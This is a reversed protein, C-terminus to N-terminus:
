GAKRFLDFREALFERNPRLAERRPVHIRSGQFGQLGHRLVPGDEETLVDERIQVTLDPQIGLVYGDFAAHHLGCLALGNPVIPEGKPHTDPLIHAAELLESHRLRCVACREEYAHLVRTRFGAQHLRHQVIRGAYRRPVAVAEDCAPPVGVLQSADVEVLFSLSTPDDGVVYVPWVPLYEGPVIGHLYVLPVHQKMALRLGVNDRHSPDTGRYRYRLLGDYDIVDDYPRDRGEVAPVTTISLPMDPLVAPKFIGQPGLLPVRNSEFQFGEALIARPLVDGHLEAKTKLFAFAAVRVRADLGVGDDKWNSV